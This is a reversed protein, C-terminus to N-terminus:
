KRIRGIGCTECQERIIGSPYKEVLYRSHINCENRGNMKNQEPKGLDM